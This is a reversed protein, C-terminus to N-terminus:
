DKLIKKFNYIIEIVFFRTYNGREDTQSLQKLFTKFMLPHMIYTERKELEWTRPQGQPPTRKRRSREESILVHKLDLNPLFTKNRKCLTFGKYTNKLIKLLIEEQPDIQNDSYHNM